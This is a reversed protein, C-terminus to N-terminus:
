SRENRFRPQKGLAVISLVLSLLLLGMRGWTGNKWNLALQTLEEPSRGGGDPAFIIMLIPVFYFITTLVNIVICVFAITVLWRRERLFLNSIFAVLAALAPIPGLGGWFRGPKVSYEPHTMFSLSGPLDAYWVSNIVMTEYVAGGFVVATVVIHLWLFITAITRM